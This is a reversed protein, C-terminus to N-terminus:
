SIVADFGAAFALSREEALAHATLAVIPVAAFSPDERLTQMAATGSMEPMRLDMLILDPRRERALEIARLGNEACIVRLGQHQLYTSYIDLADDFDDVLLVVGQVRTVRPPESM